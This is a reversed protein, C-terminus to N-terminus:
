RSVSEAQQMLLVAMGVAAEVLSREHASLRRLPRGGVAVMGVVVDADSVIPLLAEIRDGALTLCKPLQGPEVGRLCARVHERRAIWVGARCGTETLGKFGDPTTEFLFVHRGLGQAAIREFHTPVDGHSRGSAQDRLEAIGPAVAPRRWMRAWATSAFGM